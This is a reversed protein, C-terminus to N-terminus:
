SKSWIPEGTVPHYGVPKPIAASGNIWSRTAAELAKTRTIGKAKATADLQDLLGSPMRVLVERRAKVPKPKRM